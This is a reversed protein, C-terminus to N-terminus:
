IDREEIEMEKCQEEIKSLGEADADADADSDADADANADADPNADADADSGRHLQRAARRQGPWLTM